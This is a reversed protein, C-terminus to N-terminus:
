SSELFRTIDQASLSPNHSRVAQVYEVDSSYLRRGNLIWDQWYRCETCGKYFTCKPKKLAWGIRGWLSLRGTPDDEKEDMLSASM